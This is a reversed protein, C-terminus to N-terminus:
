RGGYSYTHVGIQIGAIWESRDLLSKGYLGGVTFWPTLWLQGRVRAELVWETDADLLAIDVMRGGGAVEGAFKLRRLGGRLGLVVQSGAAFQRTGPAPREDALPSIEFEFGIYPASGMAIDLREVITYSVDSGEPTVTTPSPDTTRAAVPAASSKRPIHRMNLGISVAVYPSELATGWVGYPPCRRYGVVGEDSPCAHPDRTSYDITDVSNRSDDALSTRFPIALALVSLVVGTRPM